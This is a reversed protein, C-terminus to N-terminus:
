SSARPARWTVAMPAFLMTLLVAVWVRGERLNYDALLTEWPNGFLYHGALFEFSVTLVLWIVGVEVADRRTRAGIWRVSLWALLAIAGCLLASSALHATGVGLRPTLVAERFIGNAVAVALLVCWIGLSRVLM